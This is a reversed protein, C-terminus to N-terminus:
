RMVTASDIDKLCFLERSPCSREWRSGNGASIAYPVSMLQQRPSLTQNLAASPGSVITTELYREAEGFAFALDNVAVREVPTTGEGGLIVNFIGDVVAVQRTEGWVLIGETAANYLEFRLTYTGPALGVGEADVLEGQYHILKPVAAAEAIFSMVSLAVAVFGALSQFPNM